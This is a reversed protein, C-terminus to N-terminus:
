EVNVCKCKHIILLVVVVVVISTTTTTTTMKPRVNDHAGAPMALPPPVQRGRSINYLTKTSDSIDIALRLIYASNKLTM